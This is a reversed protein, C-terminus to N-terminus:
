RSGDEDQTRATDREAYSDEDYDPQGQKAPLGMTHSLEAEVQDHYALAETRTCHRRDFRESGAGKLGFVMTEFLIPPGALGFNHDIALFVTSIWVHGVSTGAVRRPDREAGERRAIDIQAEFWAAWTLLDTCSVPEGQDDLMWHVVSM